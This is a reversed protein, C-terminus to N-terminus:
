IMKKQFNKSIQGIESRVIFVLNLNGDGVEKVDWETFKDGVKEVIQPVESLREGLNLVTLPNYKSNSSM